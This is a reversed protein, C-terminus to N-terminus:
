IFIYLCIYVWLCIYMFFYTIREDMDRPHAAKTCAIKAEKQGTREEKKRTPTTMQDEKNKKGSIMPV